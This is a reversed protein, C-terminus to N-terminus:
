TWTNVTLQDISWGRRHQASINVRCLKSKAIQRAQSAVFINHIVFSSSAFQWENSRLCDMYLRM